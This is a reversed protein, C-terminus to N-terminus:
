VLITSGARVHGVSGRGEAEVIRDEVHVAAERGASGAHSLLPVLRVGDEGPHPDPGDAVEEPM